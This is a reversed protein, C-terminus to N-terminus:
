FEQLTQVVIFVKVKETPHPEATTLLLSSSASIHDPVMSSVGGWLNWVRELSRSWVEVKEM